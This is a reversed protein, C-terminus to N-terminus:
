FNFRLAFQVQRPTGLGVTRGVTSTLRGFTGAAASTFPQGPQVRNAETLSNGPLANPFTGVANAFNTINFLNFIEARLEVSPGGGFGVRKSIVADVQRFSPGHIENRQLNGFTGPKPTAFAAPNLFVLGGNKIYPDVGPIRDPRRTNRSAGGGPTNVVATRDAAPNNFVNGAGDVYVIDNRQVLVPVPIGSRANIIGGVNWGSLFPGKGPLTYIASLNFTHRVDFNNYGDDYSFDALARANNGATVAENSGGTNGKSYGLTYQANMTLGNSSRRTLSLQMSNYSNHGGSTKYDVEAFPRQISAITSGPCVIGTGSTGNACTVIDFERVQTGASAGNSQVGITRNAVSRLFQNRGQSGVYAVTAAFNASLERQLSATYQYVKEPLSYENAYARPQYSRNNPNNIFNARIVNPDVPYAAGPAGASLTTSIREAEIPQIQDETQGPGVFIGFGGRLVTRAMPTYTASIRPQWNTKLSKYFPTTDPDLKGNDINFKVIRNDREHLPAYYDYRLGYNLTVAQTVRWEDQAFGVYYEQNIHKMGTAGNHFPSPESLDGFYQITTPANALFADLNAFSYTIGGQQDTSMRIFRTDGGIKIFHTGSVFNVSDAFTLSYPNYPASRGNGASNVRVLGGPIALGSTAGQGAIGTNAVSGSLNLIINEFGAPAVGRETSKAANYGFKFENTLSTGVLGQLNFVANTPKATTQFIRGTVGQPENNTGNDRFVRVYSSWNQTAKFDLRASFANETVHQKTQLQAIDFDPNASAGALIVGGPALFGSRLPAVAAAARAWAAASPIAEVFNLGADLRYGEYSGFFFARDKALPGGISGGFQDQNLASKPLKTVVSGDPNRTSDFYNRADFRDRRAYDFLAGHFDNSGSKTIVTIQGGTGTGYEAPYSSSEVRFEQVNELSAQLKFPTNNEGNVNGPAADIIASGEIGDYKIVNQEVARGSFRIDQWTGTGANQSGPAQLLLQSMQRGNVPLEQVERESVNAGIRASSLDITNARAEVTVTESVGAPHLELDLSFEQGAALTMDTYELPQFSGFTARITYVSPKLNSVVYRGQATTTVTREEGTKQNKVTVAAGPVFAGTQDLVSGSFRADGQAYAPAVMAALIVIAAVGRFTKAPNQM